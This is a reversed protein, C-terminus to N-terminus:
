APGIQPVPGSFFCSIRELMTYGAIVVTAKKALDKILKVTNTVWRKLVTWTTEYEELSSEVRLRDLLYEISQTKPDYDNFIAKLRSSRGDYCYWNGYMKYEDYHITYTNIFQHDPHVSVIVKEYKGSDAPYEYAFGGCFDTLKMKMYSNGMTANNENTILIRIHKKFIL